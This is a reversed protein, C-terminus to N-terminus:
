DTRNPCKVDSQAEKRSAADYAGVLIQVLTSESEVNVAFEFQLGDEYGQQNTLTWSWMLPFGICKSWPSTESIDLMNIGPDKAM